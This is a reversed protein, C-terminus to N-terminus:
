VVLSQADVPLTQIVDEGDVLVMQKQTSVVVCAHNPVVRVRDGVRLTSGGRIRVWGHEESLANIVAHPMPVMEKSDYLIQGFGEAQYAGDSTLVKKGADLFLRESGDANRHRSFVTAYVSLSCCDMPQVGLNVQTMDHFVYNGPRIETIKFGQYETNSFYRLSPTSGISIELDGTVAARVGAERLSVAFELMRDREQDSVRKLSDGLSEGETQPGYYSHGAHTLIGVVKLGPMGDVCAAFAASESRNWLVGCRHYGIDTEIVVEAELGQASFFASAASAGEMTDVCFSIRAQTMLQAVRAYKDEGFLAYAVRIDDFGAKVFTEAEGLKAVTLGLAGLDRQMTAIFVSKHTKIHPRLHVGERAAHEQMVSLNKELRKKEILVAPTPLDSLIM